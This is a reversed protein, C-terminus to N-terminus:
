RWATTPRRSPRPRGTRRRGSSAAAERLRLETAGGLCTVPPGPDVTLVDDTLLRAGHLAVLTALTTKGQGSPGVFALARGGLEVGSAHLVTSGRLTLLFSTVTGAMLVPLIASQETQASRIEVADLDASVIFDGCEFFRLHYESGTWSARYWWSGDELDLEAVLEGSPRERCETLDAGWTVDVDWDDTTAEPLRLDLPARLRMGCQAYIRPAAMTLAVHTPPSTHLVAFEAVDELPRGDIEVWAHARVAAGAGAVGLRVAPDEARLLHATVLSQRLCPGECFPWVAVVRDASRLRRASRESLEITGPEPPPASPTLDLRVGLLRSLKPLRVWRILLEVVILVGLAHLTAM